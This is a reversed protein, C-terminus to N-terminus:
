ARPTGLVVDPDVVIPRSVVFGAFQECIYDLANLEIESFPSGDLPNVLEIAGLYRGHQQVAGCVAHRPEVGPLKWRGSALRPDEGARDLRLARRRHMAASLVPDGDATRHLLLKESGPGSARVVVFQRTNIDFVHVLTLECPLAGHLVKLVFEAGSILDPSFHLDHMTEFLESILDESSRQRRRAPAPPAAARAPIGTSAPASVASAPAGATGGADILLEFDNVDETVGGGDAAGDAGADSKARTLLVAPQSSVPVEPELAPGPEQASGPAHAPEPESAVEPEVDVEVDPELDLGREIEAALGRAREARIEAEARTGSGANSEARLEAEAGVDIGRLGLPEVAPQPLTAHTYAPFDVVPEGRWDKWSLTALAPALPHGEFAHDFVALQVFKGKPRAELVRSIERFCKWLLAEVAGRTTGREVRYAYERYTIPTAPTPEEERRRIVEFRASAGSNAGEGDPPKPLPAAPPTAARPVPDSPVRLGGGIDVIATPQISGSSRTMPRPPQSSRDPPQSDIVRAGETLPADRPARHVLYRINLRPDVARYGSDLLEISFKSLPGSDGRLRRAEQLAGQWQKAEVCYQEASAAEGIRSVEIYWRM